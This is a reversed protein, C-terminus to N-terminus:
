GEDHADEQMAQDAAAADRETWRGRCDKWTGEPDNLTDEEDQTKRGDFSYWWPCVFGDETPDMWESCEPCRMEQPGDWRTDYASDPHGRM